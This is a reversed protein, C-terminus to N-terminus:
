LMAKYGPHGQIAPKHHQQLLFLKLNNDDPAYMKGKVYLRTSRGSGRLTLDEMALKIGQKTTLNAPLKWLGARKAAIISDVIEDKQYAKDLLDELSNEIRSGAM